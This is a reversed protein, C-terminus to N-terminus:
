IPPSNTLKVHPEARGLAAMDLYALVDCVDGNLEPEDDTGPKGEMPDVEM